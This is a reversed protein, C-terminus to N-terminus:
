QPLRERPAPLAQGRASSSPTGLRSAALTLAIPGGRLPRSAHRRRLVLRGPSQSEAVHCAGEYTMAPSPRGGVVKGGNHVAVDHTAPWDDEGAIVVLQRPLGGGCLARLPKDSREELFDTLKTAATAKDPRTWRRSSLPLATWRRKTSRANPSARIRSAPMATCTGCWRPLRWRTVPTSRRRMYVQARRSWMTRKIRARGKLVNLAEDFLKRTALKRLGATRAKAVPVRLTM